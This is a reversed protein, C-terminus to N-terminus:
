YIRIFFLDEKGSLPDNTSDEKQIKKHNRLDKKSNIDSPVSEMGTHWSFRSKAFETM